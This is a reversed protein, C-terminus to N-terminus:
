KRSSWGELWEKRRRFVGGWINGRGDLGAGRRSPPTCVPSALARAAAMAVLMWQGFIQWAPTWHEKSLTVKGKLVKILKDESSPESGGGHHIIRAAVCVRPRAGLKRARHCLDAEDGYMFFRSNFGGLRLWLDRDIMLFCGVVIDVDLDQDLRDWLHIAEPNFRKSNPFLWTLGVARCFLSWPTMDGLCSPNPMGDEFFTRGGWIRASPTRDAFQFLTDIAGDLILTDPNLLLIRRGNAQNAAFNNGQAFGLNEPAEIVTVAPFEQRIAPASGDQSLNDIVIIEYDTKTTQGIISRLCELTMDRTNYSVIVISLDRNMAKVVEM